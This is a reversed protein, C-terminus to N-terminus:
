NRSDFEILDGGLVLYDKFFDPYSKEIAMPNNIVVEDTARTAAIFLAMVIRHDNHSDVQGGTFKSVGKIVLSDELETINAGLKNLEVTIANLRDCEKIRLRKANIIRTEGESLSALVALIPVLDPCNSVDIEIGRTKSPIARISNEAEEICCGMTKLIDLIAKDGQLSDGKLGTCTINSGLAGAVLFFAAQSYDGEIYYDRPFYKQNGKIKFLKYDVNEIYIGFDKLTQLTLDVYGISELETTVMIESDGNLLPLAFLLGTIFQSSIDGRLKYTGPFLKGNIKLPLGGDTTIYDIRKEKFMEYYPTLPRTVLKGKGRFVYTGENALTVPILFRLTSGSENCNLELCNDCSFINSGDIILKAETDEIVAGLEKMINITSIIDKSFKINEIVSIGKSLSASIIGRHALSKSPPIAIEGSLRKPNIKIKEM